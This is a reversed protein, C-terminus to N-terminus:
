LKIYHKGDIVGTGTHLIDYIRTGTWGLEQRLATISPYTVDSEICKVPKSLQSGRIKGMEHMHINDSVIMLKNDIAHIINDRASVWELNIASNNLKDGDKHNVQPLNDPNLVFAQAVLRHVSVNRTVPTKTLVVYIYGKSHSNSFSHLHLIKGPRFQKSNNRTNVWRDISRVRGLNSVEYYGEFEPIDVSRWEEVVDPRDLWEKIKGEAKKGLSESM